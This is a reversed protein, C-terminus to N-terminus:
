PIAALHVVIGAGQCAAPASVAMSLANPLKISLEGDTGGSAAAVTWGSGGNTQTSYALLEAPCSQHEADVVFGGDGLSPDLELSDIDVAYANPNTVTVAVDSSHGPFLEGEPLGPSLTVPESLGTQGSGTGEGDARWYASAIGGTVLTAVVVAVLVGQEHTPRRKM